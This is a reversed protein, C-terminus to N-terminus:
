IKLVQGPHILNANSINNKNVINQVTTNYRNAIKTLNDGAVVIYTQEQATGIVPVKLIQGAYIINPNAIGNIQALNQYTTGFKSAIGSLTDGSKVIYTTFDQVPKSPQIPKVTGMNKILTPYDKYAYNMDINGRIGNVKGNSAYQWIGCEMSPAAIGWHALWKDFRNLRSDNLYTDFWSKSAYIMAYYGADEIRKCIYECIQVLMEKTPFGNKAKWGDADEMDLVIPYTPNCSKALRIIGDAEQRAQEINLAYSYHYLGYPLSVSECGNVNNRFSKDETFWGYSARLIAFQIGNNKVSNWDIEGQHNSVDIGKIM